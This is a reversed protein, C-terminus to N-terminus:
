GSSEFIWFFTNLDPSMRPSCATYQSYVLPSSRNSLSRVVVLCHAFWSQMRHQAESCRACVLMPRVTLRPDAVCMSIVTSREFLLGVTSVCHVRRPGAAPLSRAMLAGHAFACHVFLLCATFGYCIYLRGRAPLMRTKFYAFARGIILYLSSDRETQILVIESLPSVRVTFVCSSFLPGLFILFLAVPTFNEGLLFILNSGDFPLTWKLVVISSSSRWLSTVSDFRSRWFRISKRYPSPHMLRRWLCCMSSVWCCCFRSINCSILFPLM